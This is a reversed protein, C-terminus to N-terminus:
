VVSKRDAVQIDLGIVKRGDEDDAFHADIHHQYTGDPLNSLETIISEMVLKRIQRKTIKM